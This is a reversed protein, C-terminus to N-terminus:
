TLLYYMISLHLLFPSVLVMFSLFLFVLVCSPLPINGSPKEKEPENAKEAEKEQPAEAAPQEAAAPKTETDPARQETAPEGAPAAPASAAPNDEAM